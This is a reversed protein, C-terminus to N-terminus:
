TAGGATWPDYTLVLDSLSLAVDRDSQFTLELTGDLAQIGEFFPAHLTGSAIWNRSFDAALPASGIGIMDANLIGGSWSLALPSLPAPDGTAPDIEDVWAQALARHETHRWSTGDDTSVQTASIPANPDSLWWFVGQTVQVVLWQADMHPPLADQTAVVARHWSPRDSPALPISVPPALAAGIREADGSHRTVLLEGAASARGFVALRSLPLSQEKTNLILRRAARTPAALRLGHRLDPSARDADLVLRAAGYRGDVRFSMGLPKLGTPVPLSVVGPAGQLTLEAPVPIPRQVYRASVSGLPLYVAGEVTASARLTLGLDSGSATAYGANAVARAAPAFDVQRLQTGPDVDFQAVRAGDEAAMAGAHTTLTIGQIRADFSAEASSASWALARLETPLGAHKAISDSGEASTGLVLSVSQMPQPPQLTLTADVRGSQRTVDLKAGGLAPGYFGGGAGPINFHPAAAIPPATASGTGPRVLFHLHQRTLGPDNTSSVVETGDLYWYVTSNSGALAYSLGAPPSLHLDKVQVSTLSVTQGPAVGGLSIQLATESLSRAPASQLREYPASAISFTASLIEIEDLGPLYPIPVAIDHATGDANLIIPDGLVTVALATAIVPDQLVTVTQGFGIEPQLQVDYTPSIVPSM